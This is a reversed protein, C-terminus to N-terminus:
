KKTVYVYFAGFESKDDTFTASMTYRGKKLTPEFVIAEDNPNTVKKTQSFDGIELKGQKIKLAVGASAPEGNPIPRGEPVGSTLSAGTIPDWRRLAFEYKGDEPIELYWIGMAKLGMRISRQSWAPVRQGEFTHMDHANIVNTGKAEIGIYQIDNARATNRDWWEEYFQKMKAVREPHEAAVNNRQEFDVSLDYLEDGVLRWMDDMVCLTQYKNMNEGRQTDVALMRSGMDEGKIAPVLSKGDFKHGAPLKLDCLEVMTPMFDIHSALYPIDRAGTYNPINMIFPVRHGGEYNSGKSGRMGANYGNVLFRDQDLQMGGTGGNDTMFIVITNEDIGCDKLSQMLLGMNDDINAVMGYFKDNVVNPNNSYPDCYEKAINHPAHPANTSIYCFFPQDKKSQEKIYKIAEGFWIDTCYGEMQEPVNNRFYRDDFYNNDWLDPGQTVGGGGHVLTHQFGRESPRYPHNDGLHWKGFMATSYGSDSFANAVTYEELDLLSRGQITHWVGTTNNYNGTMLGSRTPASTTGSHFNTFSLATSHLKDINPTKLIENGMCSLDGYGQDDTLVMIVNPREPLEPTGSCSALSAATLIGVSLLNVKM